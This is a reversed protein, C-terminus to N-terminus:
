VFLAKVSRGEYVIDWEGERGKLWRALDKSVEKASSELLSKLEYTPVEVKEPVEEPVPASEEVEPKVGGFISVLEPDGEGVKIDKLDYPVSWDKGLEVDVMLPIPWQRSQVVPNRTMLFSIDEIAEKLISKHIEFVIEDHVTLIMKLRDEWGKKRMHKYILSMALKTVDASTGQVPGNVAKREDKSALSFEKANIDPLPQVRGFGTKVYGNKKGFQHQTSWWRTLNKYTKTFLKYKEEGEEASCGITRQVAKGTGGYSLAFNCGKGNGRLAKWDDRKKAEEGYFAVATITHLDGIKDSGCSCIAPPAEPFGDEKFEQPYEKECESCQFFAKIWLPEYSLNTVLRLEVGAYDIAALWWDPDRVSICRRMKAIAEPKTPDYTAPIGQFPVRCGGDKVKWPKSNTKCSFRGTDASFQDFKPKLTGDEAVDEVFPVLYQGMAKGLERFTKIKGMFPFNESAEEVVEDLVAKSTVVQGSKESAKLGPVELERFLLGLQQPSMIDYVLPFELEESGAKGIYPVVKNVVGKADPHTRDAEKRAEDLRTKYSMGEVEMHNFLNMGKIDGKLIKIYNPTIDRGLIESAGSYVELLSDFWLKQGQQCYKLATERDVYVRCRHMWRTALLCSRELKYIFSKHEPAETYKQFLIKWIGLTNMADASAYLVCPEWTPDLKSYNKDPSDPMLDSLEIMERNLLVNSLHKLGRGGKERPNLLYQLIYTDHWRCSDWRDRGLHPVYGNFELFEQDFGANHFIPDTKVELSLLRELADGMIRWPINNEVGEQHALPFYYGKDETPALCVGVIVDRTRGDFVRNDLGTTELDLGYCGSPASMCEEICQDLNERTGLILEKGEMWLKPKVDPRRLRELFDTFL